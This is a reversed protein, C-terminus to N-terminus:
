LFLISRKDSELELCRKLLWYIKTGNIYTNNLVDHMIEINTDQEEFSQKNTLCYIILCGFSYYSLKYNLKAPIENIKILEPAMYFEKQKMDKVFPYSIIAKNNEVIDLILENTIYIFKNDDIVIIKDPHYGIFTKACKNILYCLQRTLNEIMAIITTFDLQGQEKKFQKFSKISVAKLQIGKYDNTITAGSIINTNIFSKILSESSLDFTIKYLNNEYQKIKYEHTFIIEM